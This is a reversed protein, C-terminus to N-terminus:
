IIKDTTFYYAKYMLLAIANNIYLSLIIFFPNIHVTNPPDSLFSRKKM